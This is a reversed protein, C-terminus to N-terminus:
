IRSLSCTHEDATRSTCNLPPVDAGLSLVRSRNEDSTPAAGRAGPRLPYTSLPPGVTPGTSSDASSSRPPPSASHQTAADSAATPAAASSGTTRGGHIRPRSSGSVLQIFLGRLCLRDSIRPRQCGLPHSRDAPPLLFEVATWIADSVDPDLGRMIYSAEVQHNPKHFAGSVLIPGCWRRTSPWRDTGIRASGSASSRGDSRHDPRVM